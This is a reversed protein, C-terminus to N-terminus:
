GDYKIVNLHLSPLQSMWLGLTVCAKKSGAFGALCRLCEFSSSSTRNCLQLSAVRVLVLWAECLLMETHLAARRRGSMRMCHM